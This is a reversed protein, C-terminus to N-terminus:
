AVVQGATCGSKLVYLCSHSPLSNTQSLVLDCSLEDIILTVASLPSNEDYHLCHHFSSSNVDMNHMLAELM